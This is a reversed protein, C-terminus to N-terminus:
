KKNKRGASMVALEERAQVFKSVDSFFDNVKQSDSVGDIFHLIMDSQKVNAANKDLRVRITVTLKDARKVASIFKMKKARPYLNKLADNQEGLILSIRNDYIRQHYNEMIYNLIGALRPGMVKPNIRKTQYDPVSMDLGIEQKYKARQADDAQQPERMLRTPQSQQAFAACSLLLLTTTIFTKLNM